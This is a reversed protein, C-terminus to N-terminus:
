GEPTDSKSAGGPEFKLVLTWFGWVSAAAFMMAWGLQANLVEVMAWAGPAISFLLRVWLPKMWNPTPQQPKAM